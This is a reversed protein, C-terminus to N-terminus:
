EPLPRVPEARPPVRRVRGGSLRFGDGRGAPRRKRSFRGELEGAAVHLKWPIRPWSNTPIASLPWNAPRRTAPSILQLQWGARGTGGPGRELWQGLRETM